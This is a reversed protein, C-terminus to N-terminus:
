NPTIPIISIIGVVVPLTKFGAVIQDALKYENPVGRPLGIAEICTPSGVSVDFSGILRKRLVHCGRKATLQAIGPEGLRVGKEGVLVLPAGVRVMVCLGSTWSPIRAFLRYEGIQNVKGRSLYM